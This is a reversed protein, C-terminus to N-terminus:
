CDPLASPIEEGPHGYPKDKRALYLDIKACSYCIAPSLGPVLPVRDGPCRSCKGVLPAPAQSVRKPHATQAPQAAAQKDAAPRLMVPKDPQGAFASTVPQGNPAFVMTPPMCPYSGGNALLTDLQKATEHEDECRTINLLVPMAPDALKLVGTLDITVAGHLDAWLQSERGLVVHVVNGIPNKGFVMLM